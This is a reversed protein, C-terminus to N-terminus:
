PTVAASARSGVWPGGSAPSAGVATSPPAAPTSPPAAATSPPAAPTSPPAAPTSPPAAPTSAPATAPAAAALLSAATPDIPIAVPAPPKPADRLHFLHLSGAQLVEDFHPNARLMDVLVRRAPYTATRGVVLYRSDVQPLFSEPDRVRGDYLMSVVAYLRPDHGYGYATNLGWLYRNKRDFYFLMPFDDWQSVVVEGERTHELLWRTVTRYDQTAIDKRVSTTIRLAEKVNAAAAPVCLFLALGWAVRFGLRGNGVADLGRSVTFASALLAIPTFYDILRASTMAGLLLLIALTRLLVVRADSSAHAAAAFTESFFLFLLPLITSGLFKTTDIPAWEAGIVLDKPKLLIQQVLEFHLFRLNNPFFPCLVLGLLIGGLIPAFLDTEFRREGLLTSIGVWIAAIVLLLPFGQYALVALWTTLLLRFRRRAFLADLFVLLISLFIATSKIFTLRAMLYPSGIAYVLTWAVPFRINQRCLFWYVTYALMTATVAAVLKGAVMPEFGLALWPWTALHLLLQPDHFHDRLISASMWPFTRVFGQSRYVETLAVHYYADFEALDAFSWELLMYFIALAAIVTFSRAPLASQVRSALASLKMRTGHALSVEPM